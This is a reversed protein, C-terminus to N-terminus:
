FAPNMASCFDAARAGRLDRVAFLHFRSRNENTVRHFEIGVYLLIQSVCKLDARDTSEARPKRPPSVSPSEARALRRARNPLFPWGPFRPSTLRRRDRPRWCECAM